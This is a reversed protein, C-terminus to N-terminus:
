VLAAGGTKAGRKAPAGRERYPTRSFFSRYCKSFHSPSTFGCALAVNIVSMDTQLLLDQACVIVLPAGVSRRAAELLLIVGAGALIAEVPVAVGAVDIVLLIGSRLVIEEYFLWVYACLLFSIVGLALAAWPVRWSREFALPFMLFALLLGFGLHIGRAPLGSFVGAGVMFPLPSAIWLQYLSWSVAVVAILVAHTRSQTLTGGEFKEILEQASPTSSAADTM